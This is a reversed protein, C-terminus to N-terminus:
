LGPPSTRSSETQSSQNQAPDNPYTSNSKPIKRTRTEAGSLGRYSKLFIKLKLKEKM